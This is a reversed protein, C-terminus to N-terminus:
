TADGVQCVHTQTLEPLQHHVPFGPTSCDMPHCLTPCSQAVSSFAVWLSTKTRFMTTNNSINVIFIWTVQIPLDSNCPEELNYSYYLLHGRLLHSHPIDWSNFSPSHPHLVPVSHLPHSIPNSFSVPALDHQARYSMNQKLIFLLKNWPLLPTVPSM